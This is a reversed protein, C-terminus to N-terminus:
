PKREDRENIIRGLAIGARRVMLNHYKRNDENTISGADNYKNWYARSPMTCYDYWQDLAKRCEEYQEITM